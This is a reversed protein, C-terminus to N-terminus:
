LMLILLINIFISLQLVKTFNTPLGAKLFAIRKIIVSQTEMHNSFKRRAKTRKKNTEVIHVNAELTLASVNGQNDSLKIEEPAIFEIYFDNMLEDTEDENNSQAADLLMFVQVTSADSDIDFHRKRNNNM